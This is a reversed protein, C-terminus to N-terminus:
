FEDFNMDTMHDKDLGEYCTLGDMNLICDNAGKSILYKGLAIHSYAFCYHLGTNGALNQADMYAGRRLLLKVMKKSGQQAALIFLTNGFKDAINVSINEELADEMQAVNSAKAALIASDTAAEVPDVLVNQDEKHQQKIFAEASTEGKAEGFLLLDDTPVNAALQEERHINRQVTAIAREMDKKADPIFISEVRVEFQEPEYQCADVPSIPMLFVPANYTNCAGETPGMTHAKFKAHFSATLEPRPLRRWGLAQDPGQTPDKSSIGKAVLNLFPMNKPVPKLNKDRDDKHENRKNLAKEAHTAPMEGLEEDEDMDGGEDESDSWFEDNDSDMEQGILRDEDDIAGNDNSYDRPANPTAGRDENSAIAVGPFMRGSNAGTAQGQSAPAGTSFISQLDETPVVQEEPLGLRRALVRVLEDSSILQEAIHELNRTDITPVTSDQTTSWEANMSRNDRDEGVGAGPPPRGFGKGINHHSLEKAERPVIGATHGYNASLQLDPTWTEHPQAWAADDGVNNMDNIAIGDNGQLEGVDGGGGFSAGSSFSATEKGPGINLGDGDWTPPVEWQCTEAYKEKRRAKQNKEEIIRQRENETASSDLSIDDGPVATISHFFVAGNRDDRRQEWNDQVELVTSALFRAKWGQESKTAKRLKKEIQRQMQGKMLTTMAKDRAKLNVEIMEIKNELALQRAFAERREKIGEYEKEYITFASSQLCFFEGGRNKVAYSAPENSGCGYIKRIIYEYDKATRPRAIHETIALTSHWVNRTNVGTVNEQAAAKTVGFAITPLVPDVGLLAIEVKRHFGHHNRLPWHRCLGVPKSPADLPPFDIGEEGISSFIACLESLRCELPNITPELLLTRPKPCITPIIHLVEEASARMPSINFSEWAFITPYKIPTDLALTLNVLITDTISLSPDRFFNASVQTFELDTPIDSPNVVFTKVAEKTVTSNAKLQFQAKSKPVSNGLMKVEDLDEEIDIQTVEVINGNADVAENEKLYVHSHYQFWLGKRGYPCSGPVTNNRYRLTNSTLLSSNPTIEYCGDHLYKDWDCYYRDMANAGIGDSEANVVKFPAELMNKSLFRFLSSLFAVTNRSYASSDICDFKLFEHAIIDAYEHEPEKEVLDLDVYNNLIYVGLQVALQSSIPLKDIAKDCHRTALSKDAQAHFVEYLYEETAVVEDHPIEPINSDNGIAIIDFMSDPGTNADCQKEICQRNNSVIDDLTLPNTDYKCHRGGSTTSNTSSSHVHLADLIENETAVYVQQMVETCKYVTIRWMCSVCEVDMGEENPRLRCLSDRNLAYIDYYIPIVLRDVFVMFNKDDKYVARVLNEIRPPVTPPVVTQATKQPVYDLVVRPEAFHTTFYAKEMARKHSVSPIQSKMGVIADVDRRDKIGEGRLLAVEEETSGQDSHGKGVAETEGIPLAFDDENEEVDEEFQDGYNNFDNDGRAKPLNKPAGLDDNLIRAPQHERIHQLNTLWLEHVDMVFRKMALRSKLRNYAETNEKQILEEYIVYLPHRQVSAVPLVTDNEDYAVASFANAAQYNNWAVEREHEGRYKSKLGYISFDIPGQHEKVTKTGSSPRKGSASKSRLANLHRNPRLSMNGSLVAAAHRKLDWASERMVPEKDKMIRSRDGATALADSLNLAGSSVESDPLQTGAKMLTKKLDKPLTGLDEPLLPSKKLSMLVKSKSIGVEVVPNLRYCSKKTPKLTDVSKTHKLVSNNSNDIGVTMNPISYNLVQDDDHDKMSMNLTTNNLSVSGVRDLSSSMTKTPKRIKMMENMREVRAAERKKKNDKKIISKATSEMHVIFDHTSRDQMARSTSM